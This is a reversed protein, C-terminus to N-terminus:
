RMRTLKMEKGDEFELVLSEATLERITCKRTEERLTSANVMTTFMTRDEVSVRSPNQKQNNVRVQLTGSRTFEFIAASAGERV